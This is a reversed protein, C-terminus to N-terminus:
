TCCQLRPHPRTGGSEKALGEIRPLTRDGAVYEFEVRGFDYPPPGGMSKPREERWGDPEGRWLRTVGM